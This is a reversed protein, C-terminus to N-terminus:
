SPKTTQPPTTNDEPIKVGLMRSLGWTLFDAGKLALLLEFKADQGVLNTGALWIAIASTVILVTRFTYTAWTPTPSNIAEKSFGITKEDAM